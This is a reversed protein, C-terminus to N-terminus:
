PHLLFAFVLIDPALQRTTVNKRGEWTQRGDSSEELPLCPNKTDGPRNMENTIELVSLFLPCLLAGLLWCLIHERTSHILRSLRKGFCPSQRRSHLWFPISPFLYCTCTKGLTALVLHCEPQRSNSHNHLPGQAQQSESKKLSATDHVSGEHVLM